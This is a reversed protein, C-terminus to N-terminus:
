LAPYPPELRAMVEGKIRWLVVNEQELRGVNIHPCSCSCWKRNRARTRVRPCFCFLDFRWWARRRGQGGRSVGTCVPEPKRERNTSGVAEENTEVTDGNGEVLVPEGNAEVHM